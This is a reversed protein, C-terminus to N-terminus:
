SPPHFRVRTGSLRDHWSLGDRDLAQWFFGLGIPLLSIIGALFRGSARLFGPKGGEKTELQLGWSQMGLTRGSYSWYGAYFLWPIALM